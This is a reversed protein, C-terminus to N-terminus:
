RNSSCCQHIRECSELDAGASERSVRAGEQVGDAGSARSEARNTGSTARIGEVSGKGVGDGCSVM